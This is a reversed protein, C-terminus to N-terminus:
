GTVATVGDAELALRRDLHRGVERLRERTLREAGPPLLEGELEGHAESAGLGGPSAALDSSRRSRPTGFWGPVLLVHGVGAVEVAVGRVEPQLRPPVAENEVLGAELAEVLVDLDVDPHDPLQLDPELPALRLRRRVGGGGWGLWRAALAVLRRYGRGLWRAPGRAADVQADLRPVSGHVDVVGAAPCGAIQGVEPQRRPVMAELEHARAEPRERLVEVDLGVLRDVEM